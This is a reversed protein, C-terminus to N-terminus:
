TINEKWTKGERYVRSQYPRVLMAAFSTRARKNEENKEERRFMEEQGFRLSREYRLQKFNKTPEETDYRCREIRYESAYIILAQDANCLEYKNTDGNANREEIWRLNISRQVM